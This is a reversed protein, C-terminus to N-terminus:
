GQPGAAQEKCLRIGHGTPCTAQLCEIIGPHIAVEQGQARSLPLAQEFVVFCDPKHQQLNPVQGGSFLEGHSRVTEHRVMKLQQDCPEGLRGVQRAVDAREAAIQSRM